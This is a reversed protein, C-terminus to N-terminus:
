ADDEQVAGILGGRYVAPSGQSARSINLPGAVSFHQGVHNVAPRGGPRLYVGRERDRPIGDPEEASWLAHLIAIFEDAVASGAADEGADVDGGGDADGTGAGLVLVGARGGSLHQLSTAKRAVTYPPDTLPDVAALLRITSTTTSLAGLLTFPEFGGDAALGAVVASAGAQEADHAIAAIDSFTVDSGNPLRVVSVADRPRSESM